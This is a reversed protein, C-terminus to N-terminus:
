KYLTTKDPTEVILVEEERVERRIVHEEEDTSGGM